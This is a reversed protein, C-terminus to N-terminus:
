PWCEKEDSSTENSTRTGLQNIQLSTCSSDRSAQQNIAEASLTFGDADGTASVQYSRDSSDRDFPYTLPNSDYGLDTMDSTYTHFDLYYQEQRNAADLLIAAAESRGAQAVYSTYSPIVVAGLIAVIAVVIMLEILSFGQQKMM